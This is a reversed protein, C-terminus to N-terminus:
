GREAVIISGCERLGSAQWKILRHNLSDALSVVPVGCLIIGVGSPDCLDPFLTLESGEVEAGRQFFIARSM